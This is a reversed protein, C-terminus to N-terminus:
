SLIAGIEAFGGCSVMRKVDRFLGFHLAFHVKKDQLIPRKVGWM